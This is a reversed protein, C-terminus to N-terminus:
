KGLIILMREANLLTKLLKEILTVFPIIDRKKKNERYTLPLSLLPHFITFPYLSANQPREYMACATCVRPKKLTVMHVYITDSYPM